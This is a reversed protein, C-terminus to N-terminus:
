GVTELPAKNIKIGLMALVSGIAKGKLSKREQRQGM